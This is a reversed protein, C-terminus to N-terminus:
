SKYSFGLETNNIHAGSEAEEVIDVFLYTHNVEERYAYEYHQEIVLDGEENIYEKITVGNEYGVMIPNVDWTVDVLKWEGNVFVHNWAHAGGDGIGNVYLVNLGAVDAVYKYAYAFGACVCNKQIIAGYVSRLNSATGTEDYEAGEIIWDHIKTYKEEETGTLTEVFSYVESEVEAIAKRTEDSTAFDAYRGNEEQPIIYLEISELHSYEGNVYVSNIGTKFSVSNVWMTAMPNDYLYAFFARTAYEEYIQDYGKEASYSYCLVEENEIFLEKSNMLSDYIEKEIDNLQEYYFKRVDVDCTMQVLAEEDPLFNETMEVTVEEALNEEVVYETPITATSPNTFEMVVDGNSNGCGSLLLLAALVCCIMKSLMMKKM